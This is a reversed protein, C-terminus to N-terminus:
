VDRVMAQEHMRKGEFRSGPVVPTDGYRRFGAREFFAIARANEYSTQLYCGPSGVERLRECWLEMLRAAAGTGRAIPMLDIHLHSPWRPDHFGGAVPIRRLRCM